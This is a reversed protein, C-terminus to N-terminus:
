TMEGARDLAEYAARLSAKAADDLDRLIEVEHAAIALALEADALEQQALAVEVTESESWYHSGVKVVTLNHVATLADKVRWEASWNISDADSLAADTLNQQVVMRGLNAYCKNIHKM